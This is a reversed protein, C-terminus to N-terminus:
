CGAVAKISRKLGVGSAAAACALWAGSASRMLGRVRSSNTPCSCRSPGPLGSESAMACSSGVEIIKQPGGPVPLVVSALIMAASVCAVKMSNEATIDPMLSILATINAASFAAPKRERVMRKM